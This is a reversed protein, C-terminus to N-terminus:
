FWFRAKSCWPKTSSLVIQTCQMIRSSLRGITPPFTLSFNWCLGLWIEDNAGVPRCFDISISILVNVISVIISNNVISVIISVIISISTKTAATRPLLLPMEPCTCNRNVFQSGAPRSTTLIVRRESFNLKINWKRVSLFVYANIQGTM